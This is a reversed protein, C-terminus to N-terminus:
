FSSYYLFQQVILWTCVKCLSLLVWTCVKCRNSSNKLKKQWIQTITTKLLTFVTLDSIHTNTKGCWEHWFSTLDSTKSEHNSLIKQCKHHPFLWVWMEEECYERLVNCCTIWQLFCCATHEGMRIKIVLFPWSVLPANTIFYSRLFDM